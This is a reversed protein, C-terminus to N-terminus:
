VSTGVRVLRRPDIIGVGYLVSLEFQAAHYGPLYTLKLPIGTQPDVMSISPGLTPAGEINDGPVRMVLGFGTPDGAIDQNGTGYGTPLFCVTNATIAEDLPRALTLTGTTNSGITCNAAVAYLSYQTPAVAVSAAFQVIDGIVLAVNAGVATQLTVTTAYKAANASVTVANAASCTGATVSPIDRDHLVDFAYIRGLSARRYAETDGALQPNKKVDDLKLAAQRDGLSCVLIRNEPPCMQLNLRYDVDALSNVNSAFLSASVNGAWGYIGPYAAFIAKNINRALKRAAEGIQGPVIQSNQLNYNVADVSSLNFRSGEWQDITITKAVFEVDVLAPPTAAPTISYSAMAYPVAVSVTQGPASAAGNFDKTVKSALVLEERLVQLAGALIRPMLSTAFTNSM